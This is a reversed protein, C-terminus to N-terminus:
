RYRLEIECTVCAPNLWILGIGDEEVTVPKGNATASWGPTFNVQVSVGEGTKISGGIKAIGRGRWEFALPRLSNVYTRVDAVDLGHIPERTVRRDLPVAYALGVVGPVEYIRDDETEWVKPLVGEFKMPNAFPKWFERSKAGPVYIARVGFAKLWITSIEADAAGANQGTYITYVSIQQARNIAMPDHGGSLQELTTFDNLWFASAGSAM